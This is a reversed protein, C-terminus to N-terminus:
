FNVNFGLQFKRGEAILARTPKDDIVRENFVNYVSFNVSANKTIKYNTGVDTVAYGKTNVYVGNKVRSIYNVQTWFSLDSNFDYDLGTKIMYRPTDTLAKGENEGSKQKSKAYTYNARFALNSLIKWEGSLELGDISARGINVNEYIGFYTKGQYVCTWTAPNNFDAGSGWGGCRVVSDIKDKFDTHFVTASLSLNDNNDYMTGVEYNVSTEPKLSSRGLRIGRGHNIPIKLGESRDDINPTTYGASVGGKFSLNENLHYVIYGRPAFHGGYDKDYNYRLGATLALADTVYFNDEGFVSVDWRKLHADDSFGPENQSSDLKEHRYQAGLTLTNSDFLYSGQTNFITSRLRIDSAAQDSFTKTVEHSLYTDTLFKDYRGSHSLSIQDDKDDEHTNYGLYATKGLTRSTLNKTHKYDLALDDNETPKYMLKAGFNKDADKPNGYDKADEFKHFYRGYLSIGLADPVIAGSAYFGTSYGNGIDKHQAIDYYGNINASPENSFGKTIINIVSGMADTGYLSSMPGRIVEVRAIANAPPIFSQISGQSGFGPFASESSVPRGDILIKTYKSDMGRMRIDSKGKMSSFRPASYVGPIDKVIDAVDKHNRKEIEKQSIVSISAPAEKIDQEFATASVVIEGLDAEQGGWLQATLVSVAVLSLHLSRM